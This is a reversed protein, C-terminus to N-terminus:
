RGSRASPTASAPPTASATPSASPTPTASPSPSPTSMTMTMADPGIMVGGNKMMVNSVLPMDGPVSNNMMAVMASNMPCMTSGDAQKVCKSMADPESVLMAQMMAMAMANPMSAMVCGGAMDPNPTCTVTIMPIAVSASSSWSSWHAGFDNTTRTRATVSGTSNWMATGTWAGAPGDMTVTSSGNSLEVQFGTLDAGGTSSSPSVTWSVTSAAGDFTLAISPTGPANVVGGLTVSAGYDSRVGASTQVFPRLVISSGSAPLTVSFTASSSSAYTTGDDNVLGYLNITAGAPVTGATVSVSRSSGSVAGLTASPTGPQAGPTVTLTSSWDGAGIANVGRVQVDVAMGSTLGSITIPSSSGGSTASGWAVAGSARTRYEYRLLMTSMPLPTFSVVVSTAGADGSLGTVQAPASGVTFSASPSWAGASYWNYARVQVDYTTGSTLGTLALAGSFGIPASWSGGNTRFQYQYGSIGLLGGDPATYSVTASTGSVNASVNTPTPPGALTFYGGAAPGSASYVTVSINPKGDCYGPTTNGSPGSVSQSGSAGSWPGTCATTVSTLRYGGTSPVSWNVFYLGGGNRSIGNITPSVLTGLASVSVPTSWASTLGGNAGQVQIWYKTGLVTSSVTVSTSTRAPLNVYQGPVTVEYASTAVRVNYSTAGAAAPWSFTVSNAGADFTGTVGTVDAPQTPTAFSTTVWDSSLGGANTVRVRLRYDTGSTLGTFTFPSTPGTPTVTSWTTGGDRSLGFEYVLLSAAGSSVPSGTSAPASITASISTSGVVTATISPTSPSGYLLWADSAPSWGAANHARVTVAHPGDISDFALNDSCSTFSGNCTFYYTYPPAFELISSGPITVELKDIPASGTGNPYSVGVGFSRYSSVYPSPGRTVSTITPKAPAAITFTADASAAGAGVSTVARVRIDYATGSALGTLTFTSPVPGSGAGAAATWPGFSAGGNSSLMYQYGTIAATGTDTPATFSVTATASGDGAIVGTATVNAPAAAPRPMPAPASGGSGGSSSVCAGPQKLAFNVPGNTTGAGVANVGRAEIAYTCPGLGTIAFPSSTRAIWDSWTRGNDSSLRYEYGTLPSGGTSPSDVTVTAISPTTDVRLGGFEGPAALMILSAPSGAMDLSRYLVVKREDRGCSQRVAVTHVKSSRTAVCLAKGDGLALVRAEDPSLTISRGKGTCAGSSAVQQPAGSDPLCLVRPTVAPDSAPAAMAASPAVIVGALVVILATLIGAKRTTRFRQRV